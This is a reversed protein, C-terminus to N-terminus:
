PLCSKQNRRKPPPEGHELTYSMAQNVKEFLFLLLGAPSQGYPLALSNALEEIEVMSRLSDSRQEFNVMEQHRRHHVIPPIALRSVGFGRM